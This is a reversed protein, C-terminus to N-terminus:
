WQPVERYEMMMRSHIDHDKTSVAARWQDRIDKGHYLAVHTLTATLGAFGIGYSAASLLFLLSTLYSQLRLQM